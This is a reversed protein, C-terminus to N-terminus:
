VHRIKAHVFTRPTQKPKQYGSYNLNLVFAIKHLKLLDVCIHYALLFVHFQHIYHERYGSIQMLTRDEEWFKDSLELCKEPISLLKSIRRFCTKVCKAISEDDSIDSKTVDRHFERIRSRVEEALLM